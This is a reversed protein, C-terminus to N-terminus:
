NRRALRRAEAIKLKAPETYLRELLAETFDMIDEADARTLSGAHAGDNADERICKALEELAIPLIGERFLWPLRLGLDRREKSNPQKVGVADPQPLLPRTALDICLRCMVGAANFCGISFCAAAEKFAAAIDDPLHDPPSRSAIDRLAIYREVKVVSNLSRDGKMILNPDRSIAVSRDEDERRGELTLTVLFISSKSCKRCVSFLEHYNMWGHDQGLYAHATVDFTMAGAGCRPCDTVLIPM